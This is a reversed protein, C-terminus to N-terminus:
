KCHTQTCDFGFILLVASIAPQQKTIKIWGSSYHHAYSTLPQLSNKKKRTKLLSDVFFLQKKVVPVRSCPSSEVHAPDGRSPRFSLKIRWELCTTRGSSRRRLGWSHTHGKSLSCWLRHRWMSMLGNCRLRTRTSVQLPRVCSLQFRSM